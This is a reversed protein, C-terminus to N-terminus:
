EEEDATEKGFVEGFSEAIEEASDAAEEVTDAAEEVADEVTDAADEAADGAEEATEEATDAAEEFVDKVTDAADDVAEEVAEATEEAAEEADETADMAKDLFSEAAEEAEAAPGVPQLTDNIRVEALSGKRPAPSEGKLRLFITQLFYGLVYILSAFILIPGVVPIKRLLWFVLAGILSCIWPNNLTKNDTFRPLLTNALTVGAYTLGHICVITFLLALLGASPFGFGTFLLILIVGPVVFLAAFGTGLVPLPRDLLMAGPKRLEGGGLLLCILAGLLLAGLMGRIFGGFGSGSSRKVAAPAEEAPVEATDVSKDPVFELKGIKAGAPVAPEEGSHVTLTGGVQLDEGLIVHEGYIDADGSIEGDLTVTGAAIGAADATGNFYVTNGALYVGAATVGSAQINYAGATINDEVDVGNLTVSYAGARLSGGVETDSVTIDRGAAILNKGIKYGSFSRSSGAWYLDREVTQEGPDSESIFVNGASDAAAALSFVMLVALLASALCIMRKKM